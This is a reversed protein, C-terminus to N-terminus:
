NLGKAGLAMVLGQAVAQLRAGGSSVNIYKEVCLFTDELSVRQPIPYDFTKGNLFKRLQALLIKLHARVDAPTASAQVKELIGKVKDFMEPARRANKMQDNFRPTRFMNSVYPDGSNGLPSGIAKNWEVVVSKAYERPDWMGPAGSGKQLCLADFAFNAAKGSVQIIISYKWGIQKHTLVEWVDNSIEGTPLADIPIGSVEEWVSNLIALANREFIQNDTDAAVGLTTEGTNRTAM